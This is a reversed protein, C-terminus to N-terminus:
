EIINCTVKKGYDKLYTFWNDCKQKKVTYVKLSNVVNENLITYCYIITYHQLLTMNTCVNATNKENLALNGEHSIKVQDPMKEFVALEQSFPLVHLLEDCCM